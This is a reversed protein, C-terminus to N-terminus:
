LYFYHRNIITYLKRNKMIWFSTSRDPNLFYCSEGINNVGELVMKAAIISSNSPNKYITKDAVPSFQTGYKKDFIVSYITNPFESSERRNLVVNGVALKGDFPEGGSEAEIIRALWYMEDDRYSKNTVLEDPVIVDDKKINVTYTEQNWEVECNLTEAIFRLPVFTRNNKVQAPVSIKYTKGNVYVIEEGIAMKITTEDMTITVTKTKSDWSINKAGLAESVFRIPVLTTNNHIYPEVDMKIYNGNVQLSIPPNNETYAYTVKTMVLFQLVVLVVFMMKKM